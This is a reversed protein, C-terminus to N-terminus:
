NAEDNFLSNLFPNLSKVAVGSNPSLTYIIFSNGFPLIYIYSLYRKWSVSGKFRAM